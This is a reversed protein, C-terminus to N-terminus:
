VENTMTSTVNRKYIRIHKLRYYEYFIYFLIFLMKHGKIVFVCNYKISLLKLM